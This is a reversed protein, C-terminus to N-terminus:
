KKNILLPSIKNKTLFVDEKRVQARRNATIIQVRPEMFCSPSAYSTAPSLPDLSRCLPALPVRVAGAHEPRSESGLASKPICLFHSYRQKSPTDHIDALHYLKSM